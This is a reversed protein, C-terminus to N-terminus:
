FWKKYRFYRIMAIVILLMGIWVYGYGWEWHLEPMFDFNM